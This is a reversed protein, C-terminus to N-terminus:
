NKHCDIMVSDVIYVVFDDGSKLIEHNEHDGLM